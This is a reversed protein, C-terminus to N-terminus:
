SKTRDSLAGVLPDSVADWIRSIALISGIFAPAMGLVDTTYKMLYISIIFILFGVGTYTQGFKLM